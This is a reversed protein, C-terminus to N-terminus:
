IKTSPNITGIGVSDAASNVFLTGSDVILNNSVNLSGDDLILASVQAVGLVFSLALALSLATISPIILKGSFIKKPMDKPIDEKSKTNKNRTKM